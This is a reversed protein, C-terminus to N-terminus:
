RRSARERLHRRFQMKRRLFFLFLQRRFLLFILIVEVFSVLRRIFFNGGLLRAIRPRGHPRRWASRSGLRLLWLGPSPAQTAVGALKLDKSLIPTM